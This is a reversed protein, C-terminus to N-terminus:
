NGGPANQKVLLSAARVKQQSRNLKNGDPFWYNRM